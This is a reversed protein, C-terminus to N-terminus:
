VSHERVQQTELWARFAEAPVPRQIHYGQGIDCGIDKLKMLTAQDEIGEAIVKLKLQKAIAITTEVIVEDDKSDMLHTVFSRDLKLEQIPLKKLYTLSSYGTGFDDLALRIGNDRLSSLTNSAQEMDDIMVSEVVELILKDKPFFWKEAAELAKPVLQESLLNRVSINVAVSLDYGDRRLGSCFEIAHDMIWHTMPQIIGTSEAIDVFDGPGLLGRKPHQWRVLAEMSVVMGTKLDIKPQYHLVLEDNKIAKLLEGMVSLRVESYKDIHPDYSMLPLKSWKAARVAIMSKRTLGDSTTDDGPWTTVGIQAGLDLLMDQFQFPHSLKEVLPELVKHEDIAPDIQLMFSFNVGEMMGIYSEQEDYAGFSCIGPYTSVEKSLKDTVQVLVKDGSEHGLTFNIDHFSSFHVTCVVLKNKEPDLVDIKEKLCKVYLSRNPLGTLQDHFSQYLLEKEAEQKKTLAFLKENVAELKEAKEINIRDALALSLLIIEAISGIHTGYQTVFINPLLDFQMLARAVFGVVLCGWAAVFFLARRSKNLLGYLGAILVLLCVVIPIFVAIVTSYFQGIAFPFVLMLLSFGSLGQILSDIHAGYEKTNLFSRTFQLAFFATIASSIPFGLNAIAPSDPWFKQFAIGTIVLNTLIVFALYFMYLAYARDRVSFYIFANYLLLALMVGYFAGLWYQNIASHEIFATESWLTLPMQISTSSKVRFFFHHIRDGNLNIPLVFSPLDIPRANFPYTDGVIEKIYEGNEDIYLLQVEDLFPYDLELYLKQSDDVALQKNRLSLKFWHAQTVYGFNAEPNPIPRFASNFDKNRIIGEPYVIGEEEVQFQLFPGLSVEEIKGDIDLVLYDNEHLVQAHANNLIVLLGVCWYFGRSL